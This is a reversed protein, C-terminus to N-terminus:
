KPLYFSYVVGILALALVAVVFGTLIRLAKKLQRELNELEKPIKNQSQKKPM